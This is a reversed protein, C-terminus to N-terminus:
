WLNKNMRREIFRIIEGAIDIKTTTEIGELGPSANVELVSPGESTQLMDVGAVHLNMIESASIAMDREEKTLEILKAQGGKHLNSRFEGPRAQRKMAGIVRGDVVFARIDAGKSEEVFEQAMLKQDKSFAEIISEANQRDRSLIVGMGHTSNALKLIYPPDGLKNLLFGSTYAHNSLTTKPIRIGHAALMQLCSIKNRSNILATSDLTTFVGMGEFQKIVAAGYNTASSGIRPIIADVQIVKQKNYYVELQGNEIVLDCYMHDYVRVSHNRRRCAKM